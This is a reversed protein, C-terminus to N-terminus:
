TPLASAGTVFLSNTNNSLNAAVRSGSNLINQPCLVIGINAGVANQYKNIMHTDTFANQLFLVSRACYVATETSADALETFALRGRIRVISAQDILIPNVAPDTNTIDIGNIEGNAWIFDIKPAACGSMVGSGGYFRVRRMQECVINTLSASGGEFYIQYGPQTRLTFNQWNTHTSYIAVDSNVTFEVIINQSSDGIIHTDRFAFIHHNVYYTGGSQIFARFDARNRSQAYNLAYDLTKFPHEQTGDNEDSGSIANIYFYESDWYMDDPIAANIKNIADAIDNELKTLYDSISIEELNVTDITSGEQFATLVTYLKDAYWLFDNVAYDKSSFVNDGEDNACIAHKLFDIDYSMDGIELWYEANSLGIGRPVPQKSLYLIGTDPDKVIVNKDYQTTINWLIPDAYTIENLSDVQDILKRITKIIWGLDSDYTRTHPFENFFAM